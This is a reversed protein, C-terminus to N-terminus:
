IGLLSAQHLWKPERRPLTWDIGHAKLKNLINEQDEAHPFEQDLFDLFYKDNKCVNCPRCTPVQNDLADPGGIALAIVHDSHLEDGDYIPFECYFCFTPDIGVSSWYEAREALRAASRCARCEYRLGDPATAWRHFEALPLIEACQRCRKMSSPNLRAMAEILEDDTRKQYSKRYGASSACLRDRNARYHERRKQRIAESNEERYKKQYSGIEERRSARYAKRCVKCSAGRGDKKRKDSEYSRLDKAEGCDACTKAVPIERVFFRRVNRVTRVEDYEFDIM